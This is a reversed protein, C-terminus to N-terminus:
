AEPIIRGFIADSLEILRTDKFIARYAPDNQALKWRELVKMEQARGDLRTGDFSSGGGIAPVELLAEGALAIGFQRALRVRYDRNQFWDNYNACILNQAKQKEPDLFLEAYQKYIEVCTAREAASVSTMRCLSAFLNFADRLIVIRYREASTGVQQDHDQLFRAYIPTELFCNEYSLILGDKPIFHRLYSWNVDPDKKSYEIVGPDRLLYRCFIGFKPKCRWPPLGKANIEACSHYPNESTVDNLHVTHKGLHHLLWRIIAHNGSRKIGFVAIEKQNVIDM